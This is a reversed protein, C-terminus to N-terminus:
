VAAGEKLMEGAARFVDRPTRFTRLAKPKGGSWDTFQLSVADLLADWATQEDWEPEYYGYVGGVMITGKRPHHPPRMYVWGRGDRAPRKIEYESLLDPHTSRGREWHKRAMILASMYNEGRSARFQMRRDGLKPLLPAARASLKKLIRLNM